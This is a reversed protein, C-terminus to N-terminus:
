VNIQDSIREGESFKRLRRAGTRNTLTLRTYRAESCSMAGIRVPEPLEKLVLSFVSYGNHGM